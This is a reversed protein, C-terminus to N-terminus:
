KTIHLSREEIIILSRVRGDRTINQAYSLVVIDGKSIIPHFFKRSCGFQVLGYVSDLKATLPFKQIGKNGFQVLM